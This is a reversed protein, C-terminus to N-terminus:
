ARPRRDGILRWATWRLWGAIGCWWAVRRVELTVTVGDPAHDIIAQWVDALRGGWTVVHAQAVPMVVGPSGHDIVRCWRIGEVTDLGLDQGAEGLVVARKIMRTSEPTRSRALAQHDTM